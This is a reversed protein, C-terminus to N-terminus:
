ELMRLKNGFGSEASTRLASSSSRNMLIAANKQSLLNRVFEALERCKNEEFLGSHQWRILGEADLVILYAAKPNKFGVHRKWDEASGYVTIVNEQKDKPTGKRMGSDIFWKGLRSVGGIVPIEFFTVENRDKFERAFRECWSEVAIRSDYTFGLALLAIKGRSAEPLFADRGTLFAGKLPPLTDGPKLNRGQEVSSAGALVISAVIVSFLFM